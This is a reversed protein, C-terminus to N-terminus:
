PSRRAVLLSDLRAKAVRRLFEGLGPSQLAMVVDDRFSGFSPCVAM